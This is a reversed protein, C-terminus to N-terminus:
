ECPRPQVPGISLVANSPNSQTRFDAAIWEAPLARDSVRFEDIMGNFSGFEVERGIMMPNTDGLPMAGPFMENTDEVLGAFYLTAVEGDWSYAMHVLEGPAVDSASGGVGVVDAGSHLQCFPSGTADIRWCRPFLHEGNLRTFYGGEELAGDWRSWYSVTFTQLTGIFPAAVEVYDDNGDFLLASGIAGQVSQDPGIDGFAFGHGGSAIANRIVEGDSDELADGLHWVGIYNPSWVDAAAIDPVGAADGAVLLLRLSEGVTWDPLRVWTLLMGTAPDFSERDHPVPTGDETTFFITEPDLDVLADQGLELLLPYDALVSTTSLLSTDIEVSMQLGCTQTSGTSTSEPDGSTSATTSSSSSTSTSSSSSSGTGQVDVCAGPDAPANPSWQFGSECAPDEYACAGAMCKGMAGGLDCDANTFCEFAGVRPCGTALGGAIAIAAATGARV